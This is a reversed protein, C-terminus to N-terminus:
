DRVAVLVGNSIDAVTSILLDRAGERSGKSADTMAEVGNMIVNLVIQQLQICDCRVLPLGKGARGAQICTAVGPKAALGRMRPLARVSDMTQIRRAMMPRLLQRNDSPSPLPLM